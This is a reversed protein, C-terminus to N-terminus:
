PESESQAPYAPVAAETPLSHLTLAGSVGILALTNELAIRVAQALVPFAVEGNKSHKEFALFQDTLSVAYHPLHHPALENAARTIIDPLELVRLLLGRAAPNADFLSTLSEGDFEQNLSGAASAKSLATRVRALPAEPRGAADMDLDLPSFPPESLLVFRTNDPGIQEQLEALTPASGGNYGASSKVETGDKLLRVPSYLVVELRGTELGLAAIGARTRAIYAAHDAGWVDILRDFGRAYKDRHYALDGALYTDSGDARRLARDNEDGHQASRLWLSGDSHTAANGSALLAELTEQVAGRAQQAKESYWADFSIGLTELDARQGAEMRELAFRQVKPLAESLPYDAWARGQAEFLADALAAVSGNEPYADRSVSSDHIGCQERYRALIARAFARLPRSDEADNVYFERHVHCGSASFVAALCDGVVGGRGHSVTLPANPHASVFEFLARTGEGRLSHGYSSGKQLVRCLGEVLAKTHLKLSMQGDGGVHASAILDSGKVTLQATIREAAGQPLEVRYDAQATAAAPLTLTVPLSSVLSARNAAANIESLIQERLM